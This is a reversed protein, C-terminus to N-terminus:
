KPSAPEKPKEDKPAAGEPRFRGPSFPLGDVEAHPLFRMTLGDRQVSGSTTAPADEIVAADKPVPKGPDAGWRVRDVPTGDPASLLVFDGGNSFGARSSTARMTFVWANDFRDNKAAPAKSSDGVPGTWKQKNGNFVVVVEGPQLTLAPFKFNVSPPPKKGNESKKADSEVAASDRLMYGKLEIPTAHPNFLEVFEDGTADRSGDESADCRTLDGGAAKETPVAYLVETILPHPYAVPPTPPEAFM